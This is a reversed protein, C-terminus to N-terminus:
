LEVHELQFHHFLHWLQARFLALLWSKCFHCWCHLLPLKTNSMDTIQIERWVPHGVLRFDVTFHGDKIGFGVGRLGGLPRFTSGDKEHPQEVYTLGSECTKIDQAYRCNKATESPGQICHLGCWYSCEWSAKQFNDFQEKAFARDRYFRKM